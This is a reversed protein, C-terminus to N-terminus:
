ALKGPDKEAGSEARASYRLAGAALLGAVAGGLALWLCPGVSTVFPVRGGGGQRTDAFQANLTDFQAKIHLWISAVVGGLVGTAILAVPVAISLVGRRPARTSRMVLTVLFGIGLLHVAMFISIVLPIGFRIDHIGAPVSGDARYRGWGDSGFTSRGVGNGRQSITYVTQFAAVTPLTAAAALLLVAVVAGRDFEFPPRRRPEGGMEEQKGLEEPLEDSIFFEIEDATM